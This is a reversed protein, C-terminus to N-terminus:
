SWAKGVEKNGRSLLLHHGDQSCTGDAEQQAKEELSGDAVMVKETRTMTIEEETLMEITVGILTEEVARNMTSEGITEVGEELLIEVSLTEM